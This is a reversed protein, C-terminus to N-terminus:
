LAQVENNAAMQQARPSLDFEPEFEPPPPPRMGGLGLTPVGPAGLARQGGVGGGGGGSSLSRQHAGPPPPRFSPPPPPSHMPPPPPLMPRPPGARMGMSPPPPPQHQPPFRPPPQAGMGPPLPRAGMGPPPPWAGTGPPPSRPPPSMQPSRPPMPPPKGLGPPPPRAGNGPPPPRQGPGMGPPPAVSRPVVHHLTAPRGPVGSDSAATGLGREPPPPRAGIGTPPPRMGLTVDASSGILAPPPASPRPRASGAKGSHPLGNERCYLAFGAADPDFCSLFSALSAQEPLHPVLPEKGELWKLLHVRTCAILALPLELHKGPSVTAIGNEVLITYSPNVTPQNSNSSGGGGGGSSVLLVVGDTERGLVASRM